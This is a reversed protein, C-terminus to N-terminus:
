TEHATATSSIFIVLLKTASFSINLKFFAELSPACQETSFFLNEKEHQNKNEDKEQRIKM